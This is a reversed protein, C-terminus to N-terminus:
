TAVGKLLALPPHVRFLTGGMEVERTGRLFREIDIEIGERVRRRHASVLHLIPRKRGTATLPLERAYLLSKVEERECGLRVRANSEIAEIRWCHREDAVYQLILPLGALLQGALRPDDTMTGIVRRSHCPSRDCGSQWRREALSVRGTRDISFYHKEGTVGGEDQPLLMTLRFPKGRGFRHVGKPFNILRQIIHARCYGRYDDPHEESQTWPFLVSGRSPLGDVEADFGTGDPPDVSMVVRAKGPIYLGGARVDALDERTLRDAPFAGKQQIARSEFCALLGRAIADEFEEQLWVDDDRM